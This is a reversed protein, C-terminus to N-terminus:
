YANVGNFTIRGGTPLGDAPVWIVIEQTNVPQSFEIVAHGSSDVSWDGMSAGNQPNSRNSNVYVSGHGNNQRLNIEVKWVDHPSDLKIYWGYGNLGNPRSLFGREIIPYPTTNTPTQTPMPAPVPVTEVDRDAHDVIETATPTESSSPQASASADTSASETASATASADGSASATESATPTQRGPFPVNSIDTPWNGPTNSDNGLGLSSKGFLNLMAGLLAVVLLVVGVTIVVSRTTFRGFLLDDASDIANRIAQPDRPADEDDEDDQMASTTQEGPMFSPPASEVHIVDQAQQAETATVLRELSSSGHARDEDAATEGDIADEPVNLLAGSQTGSLTGSQPVVPAAVPADARASQPAFSRPMSPDNDVTDLADVTAITDANADNGHASAAGRAGALGAGAGAAGAVADSAAGALGAAGAGTAGAAGAAGLGAGALGSADTADPAASFHARTPAGAKSHRVASVDVPVTANNRMRNPVVFEDHLPALLDDGANQTPKVLEVETPEPFLLLNASWDQNGRKNKSPDARHRIVRAPLELLADKNVPAVQVREISAAGPLSPWIIDEDTLKAVPKWYGLLAILEDLTGIPTAPSGDPNPFGLGRQCIIWFDHPKDPVDILRQESFYQDDMYSTRTLMGYLVGALQRVALPEPTDDYASGAGGRILPTSLAASVPADAIRIGDRSLRVVDTSIARDVLGQQILSQLALACEGMIVRMADFSLTEAAPGHLYDSLSIGGDQETILVVVDDLTHMQLVPTFRPNKSLVLSSALTSSTVAAHPDTVIFLQCDRALAHDKAHWAEIGPEQRLADVLEYRDILTDGPLPTMM